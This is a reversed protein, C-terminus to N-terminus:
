TSSKYHAISNAKELSKILEDAEDPSMFVYYALESDIGATAPCLCLGVGGDNEVIHVIYGPRSNTRNETDTYDRLVRDYFCSAM